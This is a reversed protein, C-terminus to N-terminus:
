CYAWLRPLCLSVIRSHLVVNDLCSRHCNSVSECHRSFVICYRCPASPPYERSAVFIPLAGFVSDLVLRCKTPVQSTKVAGHVIHMARYQTAHHRDTRRDTQRDTVNTSQSWKPQFDQFSIGRVILVVGESKPGWVGDVHNWPFM